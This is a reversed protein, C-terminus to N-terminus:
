HWLLLSLVRLAAVEHIRHLLLRPLVRDLGVWRRGNARRHRVLPERDRRAGLAPRGVSPARSGQAVTSIRGTRPPRPGSDTGPPPRAARQPLVPPCLRRSVRARGAQRLARIRRPPRAPAPPRPAGRGARGRGPRPGAVAAPRPLRAWVRGPDRPPLPDRGG